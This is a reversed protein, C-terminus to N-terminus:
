LDDVSAASPPKVLSNSEWTEVSQKVAKSLEYPIKAREEPKQGSTQSKPKWDDNVDFPPMDGWLYFAGVIKSAEKWYQHLGRSNELIWYEPDLYEVADLCAYVLSMDPDPEDLWPLMWRAFETCPPSATVIDPNCDRLPLQTVDAILDAELDKRIDIGVSLWSDDKEFAQQWGGLGCCLDIHLQSMRRAGM